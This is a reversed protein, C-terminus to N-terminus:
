HAELWNNGWGTDVIIPVNLKYANQMEHTVIEQVRQKEEPLVSFNLEDHVQLIMKSKINEEKFRRHIRIMAIKIIDAATGQIPANIANREAFGRVTANNSLIDPLYRKRGNLTQAFGKKRAEEISEDMYTKVKPYTKFYGDILSKAENRPINLREALGFVTIGYIIGFNARKAKNRMDKDVEGNTIGHIKAATATHIDQDNKFAQIMNPDDSLHAMVRLEIQSYDASLFLHGEEPIFAKRIEKGQEGRVPINQLNPDSSSLRGTATVTQNFSTHIHGTKPNILCPLADIYTSLLKKIGRYKLIMSVVPHKNELKTLIEESTVYQGTKTKKPKDIINLKEFLVEGVQKPSSVNFEQGAAKQIEKEIEELQKTLITSTEKLSKTDINVGQIEMDALVYILPMEIDEFLKEAQNEQMLEEMKEKIRLTIDADECAYPYVEMPTLMDMTKQKKGKPGILEEISITKYQLYTEALLDMNHRMEPKCLYHAVMTDWLQGQMRIGHQRLVILDYKINQGIKTTHPNEILPKCLNLVKVREQEDQPIAIYYAEHAVAALSIGILRATIPDVSTTETDIAFSPFTLFLSILERIDEEKEILKYTHPTSNIDSLITEKEEGSTEDTSFSFLDPQIKKNNLKQQNKNLFRKLFTRFELEEFIEQLRNEDPSQIEFNKPNEKVPADTDITVLRKYIPLQDKAAIIKDRLTGKLKDVHDIIGETSGYDKILEIATKPGVGKCGPINDASDGALALLDIVQQPESIKHINKVEEIDIIRYGGKQEPKYIYINEDVLQAYDKDPTLMYTQMGQSAARKALTGIIDDAEYGELEIIPIRYAHLIDKIIPVAKKIDEPTAQRQAKYEPFIEHRFTKGKDFAVAMHTPNEKSLIENLTNCFGMIASTNLGKSNIRPNKILAFYSRYILAYADLLFLKQM